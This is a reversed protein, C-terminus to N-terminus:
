GVGPGKAHRSAKGSEMFLNFVNVSIYFDPQNSYHMETIVQWGSRGKLVLVNIERVAVEACDM